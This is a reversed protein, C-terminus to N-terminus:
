NETTELILAALMTVPLIIKQTNELIRTTITTLSSIIKWIEMFILTTLYSHYFNNQIYDRFEAYDPYNTIFNIRMQYQCSALMILSLVILLILTTLLSHLKTTTNCFLTNPTTLSFDLDYFHIYNTISSLKKFFRCIGWWLFTDQSHLRM